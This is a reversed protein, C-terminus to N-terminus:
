VSEGAANLSSDSVDGTDFEKPVLAVILYCKRSALEALKSLRFAIALILNFTPSQPTTSSHSLM